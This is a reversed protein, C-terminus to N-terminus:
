SPTTSWRAMELDGLAMSTRMNSAVRWGVILRHLADIIFCVYAV